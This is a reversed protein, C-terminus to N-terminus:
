EAAGGFRDFAIDQLPETWAPDPGTRCCHFRKEWGAIPIGTMTTPRWSNEGMRAELYPSACTFASALNMKDCLAKITYTLNIFDAFKAMSVENISGCTFRIRQQSRGLLITITRVASRYEHHFERTYRLQLIWKTAYLREGIFINMDQVKEVLLCFTFYLLLIPVPFETFNIIELPADTRLTVYIGGGVLALSLVHHLLFVLSSFQQFQTLNSFIDCHRKACRRLEAHYVNWFCKRTKEGGQDALRKAVTEDLEGVCVALLEMEGLLGVLCANVIACAMFFGLAPCYLGASYLAHSFTTGIPEGCIMLMMERKAYLGIYFSQLFIFSLGAQPALIFCNSWRYSRQRIAAALPHDRAFSRDNFFDRLSRLCEYHGSGFGLLILYGTLVGMTGAMFVMYYIDEPQYLTYIVKHVMSSLYLLYFALRFAIGLKARATRLSAPYGAIVQFPRLFYFYNQQERLFKACELQHRIWEM